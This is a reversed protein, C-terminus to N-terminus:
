EGNNILRKKEANIIKIVDTVCEMGKKFIESGSFRVVDYGATRLNREKRNGHTVQAKTKEHYDHGDCEIIYNKYFKKNNVNIAVKLLFDVRYTKDDVKIPVQNAIDIIELWDMSRHVKEVIVKFTLLNLAMVQEIPSECGVLAYELCKKMCSLDDTFTEKVWDDMSLYENRGVYEAMEETIKVFGDLAM